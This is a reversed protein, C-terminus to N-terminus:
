SGAIGSRPVYRFFFWFVNIQFSVHEAINMAANNIVALTHFCVFHGNVSSHIFYIHYIHTHTHTHTYLIGNHIIYVFTTHTHIHYEM